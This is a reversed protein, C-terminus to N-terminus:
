AEEREPENEQGGGEGIGLFSGAVFRSTPM